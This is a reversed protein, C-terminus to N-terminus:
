VLNLELKGSPKYKMLTNHNSSANGIAVPQLPIDKNQRKIRKRNEIELLDWNIYIKNPFYYEAIFGNLSLEDILFEICDNIKFLPYGFVISPVSYVCSLQKNQACALIKNHVMNLVKEFAVNKKEKKETITRHLDFINLKKM